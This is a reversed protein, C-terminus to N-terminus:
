SKLGGNKIQWPSIFMHDRLVKGGEGRETSFLLERTKRETHPRESAREAPNAPRLQVHLLALTTELQKLTQAKDKM